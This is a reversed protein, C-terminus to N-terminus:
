VKICPWFPHSHPVHKRPSTEKYNQFPLLTKHVDMQVADDAVSFPYSFHRRQGGRSFNRRVGMSPHLSICLDLKHCPRWLMLFGNQLVVCFLPSLYLLLIDEKHSDSAWDQSCEHLPIKRVGQYRKAGIERFTVNNTPKTAIAHQAKCFTLSITSICKNCHCEASATSQM